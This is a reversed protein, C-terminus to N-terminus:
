RNLLPLIAPKLISAQEAIWGPDPAACQPIRGLLPLGTYQGIFRESEAAEEGNFLIGVVDIHRNMLAEVSLLTHNISGIRNLSVLIVPLGQQEVWDVYLEEENIPVLVGGAGEIVIPSEADPIRIRDSEIRVGDIAAAAHPSLPQSLVYAEPFCPWDVGCLHQIRRTDSQDPDGSQIPKWYAADWAKALIASVITKGVGTDTGTIFCANM